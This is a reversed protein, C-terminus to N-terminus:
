QDQEAQDAWRGYQRDHYDMLDMVREWEKKWIPIMVQNPLELKCGSCCRWCLCGGGMNQEHVEPWFGAKTKMSWIYILEDPPTTRPPPDKISMDAM